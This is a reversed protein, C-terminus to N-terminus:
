PMKMVELSMWIDQTRPVLTPSMTVVSDLRHVRTFFFVNLNSGSMYLSFLFFHVVSCCLCLYYYM